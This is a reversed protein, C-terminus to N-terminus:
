TIVEVLFSAGAEELSLQRNRKRLEKIGIETETM